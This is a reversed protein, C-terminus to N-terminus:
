IDTDNNKKKSKRLRTRKLNVREVSPRNEMIHKTMQMSKENDKTIDYLASQISEEKLPTKTQSKNRRLKGGTIEIVNENINEMYELIFDEFEKRENKLDKIKSTYDRIEDDLKVWNKVVEVFEETIQKQKEDDSDENFIENDTDYGDLNKHQNNINMDYSENTNIPNKSYDPIFESGLKDPIIKNTNEILELYLRSMRPFDKRFNTRITKDLPVKIVKLPVHVNKPM